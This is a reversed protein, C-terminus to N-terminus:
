ERFIRSYAESTAMLEDHNGMAAIKGKRMVLILDADGIAQPALQVAQHKDAPHGHAELVARATTDIPKGVLAAVGIENKSQVEGAQTAPTAVASGLLIAFAFLMAKRTLILVRVQQTAITKGPMM